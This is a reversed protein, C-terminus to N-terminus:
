PLEGIAIMDSNATAYDLAYQLEGPSESHITFLPQGTEVASGLRVHLAIGSSRDAPAGALKATRAIRRNDFSQVIGHRPSLVEHTHPARAPERFGGQAECIAMFKKLAAGSELTRRARGFGDDIGALELLRAALGISKEKLDLPANPEGRLVALADRAELAPGIGRGVPEKGESVMVVVQLGLENGGDTLLRTLREADEMRRVKATPGVPMDILAHTSGAAVKKSLISAVLQGEADFDLTHEIRILIDDAPSLAVGGGWVICGGEREVVRRMSAVDLDVPAMTEMADATGAPSTIARSSTKPMILGCAAVIPVVLITTRNGPLGGVSHKDLIPARDWRIQRGAAVMARTLDIIERSNLHDGACATIFSALHIDSYRGAVVDQIISQLEKANLPKGYAKGRVFRFSDLPPPHSLSVPSGEEAGLIHWAAESLGVEGPALLDTTVVNLTALVSRKGNKVLVRALSAFGESRCVPCDRRMYIVAERQTDIGLRKVRLTSNSNRVPPISCFAPRAAAPGFRPSEPLKGRYALITAAALPAAGLWTHCADQM